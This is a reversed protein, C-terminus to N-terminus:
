EAKNYVHQCLEISLIVYWFDINLELYFKNYFSSFSQFVFDLYIYIYWYANHMTDPLTIIVLYKSKVM